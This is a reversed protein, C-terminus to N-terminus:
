KTNTVILKDMIEIPGNIQDNFIRKVVYGGPAVLRGKKNLGDWYPMLCPRTEGQGWCGQLEELGVEATKNFTNDPNGWLLFADVTMGLSPNNLPDAVLNGLLDFIYLEIRLDPPRQTNDNSYPNIITYGWWPFLPVQQAPDAPDAGWRLAIMDNRDSTSILTLECLIDPTEKHTELWAIRNVRGAAHNGHMDEVKHNVDADIKLYIGSKGQVFLTDANEAIVISYANLGITPNLLDAYVPHDINSGSVSALSGDTFTHIESGDPNRRTFATALNALNIAHPKKVPESFMIAITNSSEPVCVHEFLVYRAVVPAMSDITLSFPTEYLVQIKSPNGIGAYGPNITKIVQNDFVVSPKMGTEFTDALSPHAIFTPVLWVRYAKYRGGAGAGLQELKYVGRTSGKKWYRSFKNNGSTYIISSICDENLVIGTDAPNFLIDIYDMYGDLHNRYGMSDLFTQAASANTINSRNFVNKLVSSMSLPNSSSFTSHNPYWEHTVISQVGLAPEAALIVTIYDESTFPVRHPTGDYGIYYARSYNNVDNGVHYPLNTTHMRTGGPSPQSLHASIDYTCIITDGIYVRSISIKIKQYQGTSDVMWSNVQKNGGGDNFTGQVFHIDPGLVDMILPNTVPNIEVAATNQITRSIGMFIDTLDTGTETYYWTGGSIAAYSKMPMIGASDGINITFVIPREAEPINKLLNFADMYSHNSANDGGDTLAIIVPLAGQRKYQQIHQIAAYIADYLATNDQSGDVKQDITNKAAEFDTTFNYIVEPSRAFRIHAVRDGTQLSSDLFTICANYVAQIRNPNVWDEDGPSRGGMSTTNDTVFLVDLPEGSTLAEGTATITLTVTAVQPGSGGITDPSVSRTVSLGPPASFSLVFLSFIFGTFYKMKEM